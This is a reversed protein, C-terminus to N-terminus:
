AKAKGRQFVAAGIVGGLLGSVCAFLVSAVFGIVMNKFSLGEAQQQELAAKAQEVAQEGGMKEALTLAMWESEKAGVQYDFGLYLGMAVVWSAMAGMLCTGIALKIAEGKGLTLLYKSTFLHVALLAGIVQPLCCSLTAFPVFAIVFIVAAGIMMSKFSDPEEIETMQQPMEPENQNM